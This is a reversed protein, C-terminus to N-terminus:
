AMPAVMGWLGFIWVVRFLRYFESAKIWYGLVFVFLSVFLVIAMWYVARRSLSELLERKVLLNQEASLAAVTGRVLNVSEVFRRRGIKHATESASLATRAGPKEGVDSDRRTRTSSAM